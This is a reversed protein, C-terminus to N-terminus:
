PTAHVLFPPWRSACAGHCRSPGGQGDRTFLYLARGHGDILIRGYRSGAIKVAPGKPRAPHKRALPAKPAPATQAPAATTRQAKNSGSGGCGGAGVALAGAAVIAIARLTRTM